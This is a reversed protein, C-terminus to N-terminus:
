RNNPNIFWVPTTNQKTIIYEISIDIHNIIWNRITLDQKNIKNYLDLDVRHLIKLTKKDQIVHTITSM